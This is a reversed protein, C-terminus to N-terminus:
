SARSGLRAGVRELILNSPIEFLCYGFGGAGFGYEANTLGLKQQLVASVFGVNVRDIYAIVYCVFSFAVLRRTVKRLVRREVDPASAAAESVPPRGLRGSRRLGAHARRAAGSLAPGCLGPTIVVVQFSRRQLMGPFSGQRAGLTLTRSADSWRLPIRASAGTEYGYSEGDDEYLTFAADAGAYVFLTIPDPPKEGTYQLEPGLPVISGARVHVPIADFPAPARVVGARVVAGTWFDYWGGAHRPLRGARARSLDHGPQGSAPGFMYQDAVERARADGAFDMVLARLISGADHTVAAALSYVYPLLRYRLRDHELQAKFAASEDGGFEWM